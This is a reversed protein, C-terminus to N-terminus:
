KFEQHCARTRNKLDRLEHRVVEIQANRAAHELNELHDMFEEMAEQWEPEAFEAFARSSEVFEGLTHKDPLNGQEVVRSLNKYSANLRKKVTKLSRQWHTVEERAAESYDRLSPWQWSLKNVMRGKKEKFSIKVAFKEPVTWKRGDAELTGGRFERALDELYNAFDLRNFEKATKDKM